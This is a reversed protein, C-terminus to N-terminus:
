LNVSLNMILNFHLTIVPINLILLHVRKGFISQSQAHHPMSVTKTSLLLLMLTAALKFGSQGVFCDWALWPEYLLM